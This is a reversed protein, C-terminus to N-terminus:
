TFTLRRSADAVRLFVFEGPSGALADALSTPANILPPLEFLDIKRSCVYVTMEDM